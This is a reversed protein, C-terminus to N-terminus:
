KDYVKKANNIFDLIYKVRIDIRLKKAKDLSAKSMNNKLEHNEYLELITKKIEDINMPNILLSNNEDLIDYNFPMDSSVIPLGCSMAEVISNSCGEALTPLVYIDACNLYEAIYSHEVKGMFIINSYDPIQKENEVLSGILLLKIDPNDIEKLAQNLRMVGKRHNFRGCFAVIFSDKPFNYKKRLEAKDMPYFYHPNFANPLVICKEIPTLGLQVSENMNKTSVCIVGKLVDKLKDKFGKTVLNKYIVDEGSAVFLPIKEKISIPIVNYASVWFHSYIIDVKIKKRRIFLSLVIQNIKRNIFRILKLACNIDPLSISYPRLVRVQNNNVSYTYDQSLFKYGYKINITLSQPAIVIVEHGQRTMEEAVESVFASYPVNPRPYDCASILIKMNDLYKM